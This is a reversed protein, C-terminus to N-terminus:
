EAAIIKIQEPTMETIQTIDAIPFHLALLKKIIAIKELNRGQEMGVTMGEGRAYAMASRVDAYKLVSKNYTEMDQETLQLQYAYM